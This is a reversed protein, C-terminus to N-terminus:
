RPLDSAKLELTEAMAKRNEPRPDSEGALYDYVVSPDVGAMSAWKSPSMGKDQLIPQVYEKRLEAITKPFKPTLTKRPEDQQPQGDLKEWGQMGWYRVREQIPRCPGSLAPVLAYPACTYQEWAVRFYHELVTLFDRQSQLDSVLRLHEEATIDFLEIALEMRTPSYSTRAADSLNQSAEDTRRAIKVMVNQYLAANAELRKVAAHYAL